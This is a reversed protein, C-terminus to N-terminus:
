DMQGLKSMCIQFPLLYIFVQLLQLYGSVQSQTERACEEAEQERMDQEAHLEKLTSLGWYLVDAGLRDVDYRSVLRIFQRRYQQYAQHRVLILRAELMIAPHHHHSTIHISFCGAPQASHLLVGQDLGHELYRIVHRV